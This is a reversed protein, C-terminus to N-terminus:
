DCLALGSKIQTLLWEQLGPINDSLRMAAVIPQWAVLQQQDHPRLQFYRELYAKTFLDISSRQSPESMSVGSLMLKSRAVDELPNGIHANNWDIVVPGRPSMLVNYPHFDGHCLRDGEPMEDLANLTAERLDPPLVDIRRIVDPFLQGQSPVDPISGCAHIEAHVEAFVRALRVVADPNPEPTGLLDDALSRGEIREYILGLSGDIEISEGAAPVPLGAEYLARDVRAVHEVWGPPAEDGYLKVLQGEGWAYLNDTGAVPEGLSSESMPNVM